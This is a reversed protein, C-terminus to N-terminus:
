KGELCGIGLQCSVFGHVGTWSGDKPIFVYQFDYRETVPPNILLDESLITSTLKERADFIKRALVVAASPDVDYEVSKKVVHWIKWLRVPSLFTEPKLLKERVAALVKQQRTARALDTGEEGEAQRSRVFKLAEAGDMIQKGQAFHLTEYRCRFEKDGECLDNEMGPIPYKEDVFGREVDVEIGDVIDIIETFSSFDVVLGYHVPQGTIEEVLSKALKLGGGPEKQKGWYYASNIKARIEPIWIDRPISIFNVAPPKGSVSTFIISDTLDPSDHGAGAKGLILLNTHNSQSKIQSQPAFIFDGAFHFFNNIGFRNFIFGLLLFLLYIGVAMGVLLAIRVPWVYRLIKRKLKIWFRNKPPATVEISGLNSEDQM